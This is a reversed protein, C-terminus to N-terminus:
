CFYLSGSLIQASVFTLALHYAGVQPVAFHADQEGHLMPPLTGSLNEVLAGQRQRCTGVTDGKPIDVDLFSAFVKLRVNANTM